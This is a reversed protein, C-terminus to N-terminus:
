GEAATAISARISEVANPCNWRAVFLLEEAARADCRVSMMGNGLDLALRLSHYGHSNKPIAQTLCEFDEKDLTVYCSRGAQVAPGHSGQSPRALSEASRNRSAGPVLAWGTTRLADSIARQRRDPLERRGATSSQRRDMIIEIDSDGTRMLRFTDYLLPRDRAVILLDIPAPVPEMLTAPPAAGGAGPTGIHVAADRM